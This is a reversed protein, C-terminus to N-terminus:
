ALSQNIKLAPSKKDHMFTDVNDTLLDEGGWRFMIYMRKGDTM